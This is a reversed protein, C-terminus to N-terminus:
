ITRVVVTRAHFQEWYLVAPTNKKLNILNKHIGKKNM